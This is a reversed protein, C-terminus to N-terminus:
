KEMSRCSGSRGPRASWHHARPSAGVEHYLTSAFAINRLVPVDDFIIQRIDVADPLGDGTQRQQIECRALIGRQPYTFGVPDRHTRGACCGDAAVKRAPRCSATIASSAAWSTNTIRPM